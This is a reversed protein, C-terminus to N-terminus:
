ADHETEPALQKLMASVPAALGLKEPARSNYWVAPPDDMSTAEVDRVEDTALEVLWPRIEMSLHTLEHKITGSRHASSVRCGMRRECWNRPDDGDSLEPFSWLGGWIGKTPRQELWVSGDSRRAVIMDLQRKGRVTPPKREPYDSPNGAIFAKCDDTLPCVDCEPNRRCVTAGLDMLAQTYERMRASPLHSEALEWLRKEVPKRGPWGAVAHYRALVRKVNGDLIAVREGASLARIAGATSRGIGPLAMLEEVSEPLSSEHESVIQRAAAHLNRARAYYGLGSWLHLVDDLEAAALDDVTPFREMFRTFYGVVTPVQTQQLMIESVWVRYPSADVRGRCIRAATFTM